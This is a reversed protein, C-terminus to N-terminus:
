AALNSGAPMAPLGAGEELGAPNDSRGTSGLRGSRAIGPEGHVRVFIWRQWVWGVQVSEPGRLAPQFEAQGDLSLDFEGPKTLQSTLMGGSQVKAPRSGGGSQVPIAGVGHRLHQNAEMRSLYASPDM